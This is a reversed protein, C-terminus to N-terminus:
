RPLTVYLQTIILSGDPARAAGLGTTNFPPALLNKRHTKSYMWGNLIERSPARATTKGINEAALSYGKLPSAQIRDLPSLGEPNDHAFFGRTAMDLSHARAVDDLDGNRALDSRHYDGRVSNVQQFLQQEIKRLDDDAVDGYAIQIVLPGLWLVVAFGILFCLGQKWDRPM